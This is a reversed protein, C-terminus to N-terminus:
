KAEMPEAPKAAGNAQEARGSALEAAAGAAVGRRKEQGVAFTAAGPHLGRDRWRDAVPVQASYDGM